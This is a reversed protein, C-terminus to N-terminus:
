EVGLPAIEVKLEATVQYGVKIPVVKLGLTKLPEDLVIKKRDIEIGQENLKEAIDASTVSGYLRDEEGVRQNITVTIGAIKEALAEAEQRQQKKRSDIIEKQQALMAMNSKTAPLAIGRPLLYNRAYGPKVKVIDGVEGLTDVTEKLILEMNM